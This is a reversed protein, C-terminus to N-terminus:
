WQPAIEVPQIIEIQNLADFADPVAVPVPSMRTGNRSIAEGYTMQMSLMPLASM